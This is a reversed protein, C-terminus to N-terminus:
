RTLDETVSTSQNAPHPLLTGYAAMVQPLVRDLGYQLVSERAAASLAQGLAPHELLRRIQAAFAADDDYPYLLGTEGDAILDTHGKVASAAVPLGCYMSEMINFPLGESRSSSVAIDCAGYWPAMEHQQGPFRIRDVVGLRAALAQCDELNAGSGPLILKVTDPLSPLARILMAQNKRNSFEAAFILLTDAPSFGWSRRLAAADEPPLSQFRSFDVGIGPIAEVRRGLRHKRAADYDWRNMTLLLDTSGATLKEAELLIARKAFPTQDDFLYGHAVNVLPPRPHVRAAARRTFFAALSTHTCVLSYSHEEMLRRLQQEAQFNQPSSMKKEFPLSFVRDAEPIAAASGGCAIHVAFGLERFARLYPRHFNQIHSFTSATFLVTNLFFGERRSREIINSM